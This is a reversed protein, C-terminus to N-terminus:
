VAVHNPLVGLLTKFTEVKGKRYYTRPVRKSIGCMVEYAITDGWEAIIYGHRVIIGNTLARDKPLPGLLSGFNQEQTSFDRPQRTEQTKAFEVAQNLLAPDFGAEAPTKRQWKDGPEPYYVSSRAPKQALASALVTLLIATTVLIRRM